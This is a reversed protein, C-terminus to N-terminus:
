EKFDEITLLTNGVVGRKLVKGIYDKRFRSPVGTGPRKGWIDEEQIVHGAPLDKLYVLSRHAWSRIEWESEHIEKEAVLSTGLNNLIVQLKALTEFDISVTDDPGTLEHSITVHKELVRAGLTFAAIITEIGDTHDSHGIVALPYRTKMELIFKLHIDEPKPPYASTCNMLVLGYKYDRFLNYTSDIEEKTAMGTSIIMPKKFEMIKLITPHDLLEGSGIKYAFPNIHEELEVAAELSFPTCLYDIGIESCFEALEVHQEIKLANRKLFEYLPEKMNGSMPIEPLMEADPIHHQFKIASVGARKAERVMLKARNLDGYHADAGEAILYTEGSKIREYFTL